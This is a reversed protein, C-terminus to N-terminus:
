EGHLSVPRPSPRPLLNIIATQVQGRTWDHSWDPTHSDFLSLGYRRRWIHGAAEAAHRSRCSTELGFRIASACSKVMDVLHDDPEIFQDHIAAARAIMEARGISTLMDDAMVLAQHSDLSPAGGRVRDHMVRMDRVHGVLVRVFEVFVDERELRRDWPFDIESCLIEMPGEDGRPPFRRRM